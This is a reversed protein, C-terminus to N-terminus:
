AELASEQDADHLHHQLQQEALPDEIKVGADAPPAESPAAAVIDDDAALNTNGKAKDAAVSSKSSRPPMIRHSSPRSKLQPRRRSHDAFPQTKGGCDTSDFYSPRDDEAEPGSRVLLLLMM